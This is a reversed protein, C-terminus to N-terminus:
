RRTPRREVAKDPNNDELALNALLEHAEVLKPDLELAKDAFEVAKGDFGDAGVLALGLYAQPTRRTRRWRKRSCSPRTPTTSASSCCAAGASATCPTGDAVAGRGHPVRQQRGSLSAPGLLRRGAPVSRATPPSRSSLLRQAEARRGHKRLAHATTLRPRRPARRRRRLALLWSRDRLTAHRASM